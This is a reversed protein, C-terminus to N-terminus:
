GLAARIANADRGFRKRLAHAARGRHLEDVGRWLGVRADRRQAVAPAALSLSHRDGAAAAARGVVPAGDAHLFEICSGHNVLGLSTSAESPRASSGAHPTDTLAMRPARM